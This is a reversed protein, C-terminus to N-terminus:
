AMFFATATRSDAKLDGTVAGQNLFFLFVVVSLHGATM